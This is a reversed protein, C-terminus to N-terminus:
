TALSPVKELNTADPDRETTETPTDLRDVVRGGPQPLWKGYTDLTMKASAHGLLKSVALVPVGKSLLVSAVTHRIQHQPRYRVGARKLAKEYVERGKAYDVPRGAADAFVWGPTRGTERAAKLQAELHDTLVVGLEQSLDITREEGTKPPGQRRKSYTRRITIARARFDIDEWKLGAIEGVRAGTRLATFYFPHWEPFHELLAALFRDAEDETFPDAGKSKEGKNIGRGLNRAPNKKILEDEEASSLIRRLPGLITLASKSKHGAMLEVLLERVHRKEVKDLPMEGIKPYIHNKLHRRYNDLTSPRLIVEGYKEVWGQAYEKFTPIQDPGGSPLQGLALQAETIRKVEQAAKKDGVKKSWRKRKHNVYVWWVGSGPPRERLKVGM